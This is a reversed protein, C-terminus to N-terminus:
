QDSYVVTREEKTVPVSGLDSVMVARVIHTGPAVGRLRIRYVHEGGPALQAKPQFAVLGQGDTGAESDASILELGQPLQIQVRVNSDAKSGGNKVRIEFVTESGLEIPGSQSSIAFSLEAFGEVTITRESKTVVGLDARADIVIAQEGEEVPLLTLPVKGNGGAPLQALSWFVAHRSPDYQGEYDTSVFTFGRDLQVAIEINTADATGENAINLQYTAQRELYRKSPGSLEIKLDPAVVQVTVTHEASLGDDGALRITNQIVGPSVARLRLIQNRIEGPALTGLSNDLQRGKPHELGEPVDEQLSVGTAAGSGPNSVQLEIELQQGILVTEPATQVIKLAPRTSITRVSAVAEFSVRAVSGLEGEQQPILQMTVTRQDGAPMSGLEWYLMDGQQVPTPSADVLQMGSPIRDHIKGALAEASGVNQVHIVFSAPKGVKVEGPARKQIVISPTQAGELRRDGPSDVTANPDLAIASAPQGFSQPQYEAPLGPAGAGPLSAMRPPAAAGPQASDSFGQASNFAQANNFQSNGGPQEVAGFQPTGLGAGSPDQTPQDFQQASQAFGPANQALEDAAPQSFGQPPQSFDQPPQNLDPGAGNAGLGDATPPAIDAVGPQSDLSSEPASRLVNGPYAANDGDTAIEQVTEAANGLASGSAVVAAAAAVVPITASAPDPSVEMSPMEGFKMKPPAAAQQDDTAPSGVESSAPLSMAFGPGADSPPDSTPQSPLTWDPTEQPLQNGLSEPLASPDFSSNTESEAVAGTDVPESHQVLKVAANMWSPGSNQATEQEGSTPQNLWSDGGDDAIPEAPEGLSPVDATWTTSDSKKDKQALVAAYAGFLLTIAGAAIKVGFSKM